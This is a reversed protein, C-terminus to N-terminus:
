VKKVSVVREVVGTTCLWLSASHLFWPCYFARVKLTQNLNSIGGRGRSVIYCSTHRLPSFDMRLCTHNQRSAFSFVQLSSVYLRLNNIAHVMALCYWWESAPVLYANNFSAGLRLETFLSRSDLLCLLHNQRLQGAKLTGPSNENYCSRSLQQQITYPPRSM